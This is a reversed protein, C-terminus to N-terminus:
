DTWFDQDIQSDGEHRPGFVLWELGDPGAEFCRMVQPEIRIADMTQLDVLEDDLRVRGSGSLVVNIEEAKEHRHGFGQRRGPRLVHYALGTNQADLAGTAFRAEGMEGFGGKAAADEVDTLKKVTYAMRPVSDSGRM